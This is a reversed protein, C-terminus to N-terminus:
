GDWGEEVDRLVTKLEQESVDDVCIASGVDQLLVFIMRGRKIKKDHLMIQWADEFRPWSVRRPALMKLTRTIKGTKRESLLGRSRSLEVAVIMGLSVANGHTMRFRHYGEIAHGFTHGFNLIRRLGEERFDKSVVDSKTRASMAAVRALSPVDGGLLLKSEREIFEALEPFAILGTKYAEILGERIQKRNLTSLAMFDLIVAEPITFNGVINKGRGLNVAAKGGVAADVCGVLSTSVPVFGMGRKFTSGVFAGLDTIVGGGLALLLDGRDFHHDFLAQYIGRASKLTKTREGPRLTIVHPNKLVDRYRDLHLRAVTRDTIVAVRRDHISQPLSEPGQWTGIVPCDANGLHVSFRHEDFLATMISGAIQEPTKGDTSVRLGSKGYLNRRREFLSRLSEEDKWLPRSAREQDNLREKCIPLDADLHVLSGSSEMRERNLRREIAGGGTAVVLMARGSLKKLLDSEAKRFSEEGLTAFVEPISMGFGKELLADMDVFRRNLSQALWKGVTTKGSGMFGVLYINGSM